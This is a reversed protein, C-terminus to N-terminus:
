YSSSISVKSFFLGNKTFNWALFDDSGPRGVRTNLIDKVDEEYFFDRLKQEDWAGGSQFM